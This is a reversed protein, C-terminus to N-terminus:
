NGQLMQLMLAIILAQALEAMSSGSQQGDNALALRAADSIDVSTSPMMAPAEVLIASGFDANMLRSSFGMGMTSGAGLSGMAGIAGLSM